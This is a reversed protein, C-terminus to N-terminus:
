LLDERGAKSLKESLVGNLLDPCIIDLIKEMLSQLTKAGSCALETSLQNPYQVKFLTPEVDKINAFLSNGKDDTGRVLANFINKYILSIANKHLKTRLKSRLELYSVPKTLSLATLKTIYENYENSLYNNPNIEFNSALDSM